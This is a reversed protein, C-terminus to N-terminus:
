KLWKEVLGKSVGTLRVLQQISLGRNKFEEINKEQEAKPLAQFETVNSCGSCLKIIVRAQEDTLRTNEKEELELCKDTNKRTFEDLPMINLIFSDM